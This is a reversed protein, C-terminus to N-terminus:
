PLERTAWFATQTDTVRFARVRYEYSEGPTVGLDTYTTADPGVTDVEAFTGGPLTRREISFGDENSSLDIWILTIQNSQVSSVTLSSPATPTVAGVSFVENAMIPDGAVFGGTTAPIVGDAVDLGLFGDGQISQVVVNVGLASSSGWAIPALGYVSGSVDNTGVPIFHGNQLSALAVPDSFLVRFVGQGDSVDDITWVGTVRPGSDIYKLPTGGYGDGRGFGNLRAGGGLLTISDRDQVDLAIWGNGSVNELAVTYLADSNPTISGPGLFEVAGGTNISADLLSFGTVDTSFRVQWTITGGTTVTHGGVPTIATIFPYVSESAATSGVNIRTSAADYGSAVLQGASAGGGFDLEIWAVVVAAEGTEWWLAIHGQPTGNDLPGILPHYVWVPGKASEDQPYAYDSTGYLRAKKDPQGPQVLIGGYSHQLHVRVGSGDTYFTVDDSSDGDIDVTAATGLSVGSAGAQFAAQAPLTVLCLGGVAALVAPALARVLMRRCSM